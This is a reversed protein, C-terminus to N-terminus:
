KSYNKRLVAAFRNTAKNQTIIERPTASLRHRSVGARSYSVVATHKEKIRVWVVLILEM